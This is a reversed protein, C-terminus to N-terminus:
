AGLEVLIILGGGGLSMCMLPSDSRFLFLFMFGPPALTASRDVVGSMWAGGRKEEPRSYPDLYFSAIQSGESTYIEFYQVDKNWTETKGVNFLACSFSVLSFSCFMWPGAISLSLGGEVPKITIEFLRNALGFLGDIVSPLPFYPRLEEDKLDFKSERM